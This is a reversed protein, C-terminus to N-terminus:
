VLEASCWLVLVVCRECWTPWALICMVLCSGSALLCSAFCPESIATRSLVRCRGGCSAGATTLVGGVLLVRLVAGPFGEFEAEAESDELHGFAMTCGRVPRREEVCREVPPLPFRDGACTGECCLCDVRQWKIVSSQGRDRECVGLERVPEAPPLPFRDGACSVKAVCAIWEKGNSLVLKGAVESASVGCRKGGREFEYRPSVTGGEILVGRLVM